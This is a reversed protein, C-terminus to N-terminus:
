PRILCSMIMCLAEEEDYSDVCLIGDIEPTPVLGLPM